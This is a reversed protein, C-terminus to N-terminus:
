LKCPFGNKILALDASLDVSVSLNGRKAKIGLRTGGFYLEMNRVM